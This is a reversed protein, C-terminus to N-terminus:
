HSGHNGQEIRLPLVRYRSMGRNLGGQHVIKLLGCGALSKISKSVSKVSLGARKAIDSRATAATGNKTDRYLILWVRVDSGTLERMTFDVFNNLVAFRNGTTAKDSNRTKAAPPKSSRNLPPLTSCGALTPLEQNTTM